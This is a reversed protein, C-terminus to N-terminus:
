AAEKFCKSTSSINFEWNLDLVNACNLYGNKIMAYKMQDNTIYFGCISKEFCEKIAYSTYKRNPRKIKKTHTSIWSDLTEKQADTLRNYDEIIHPVYYAVRSLDFKNIYNNYESMTVQKYFQKEIYPPIYGYYIDGAWHSLRTFNDKFYVEDFIVDFADCAIQTGERISEEYKPADWYFDKEPRYDKSDLANIHYRMSFIMASGMDKVDIVLASVEGNKDEILEVM